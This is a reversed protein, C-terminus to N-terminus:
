NMVNLLHPQGSPPRPGQRALRDGQLDQHDRHDHQGTARQCQEVRALVAVCAARSCTMAIAVASASEGDVAAAMSDPFAVSIRCGTVSATRVFVLMANMVIMDGSRVRNM